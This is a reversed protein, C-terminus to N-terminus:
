RVLPRASELERNLTVAGLVEAMLPLYAEYSYQEVAIKRAAAGMRRREDPDDALQKIAALWEERTRALIGNLGDRVVQDGIGYYSSVVPVGSAMYLMLKGGGRVRTRANEPQYSIAIDFRAVENPETESDWRVFETPIGAISADSPAGILALELRPDRTAAEAVASIIPQILPFTSPSGTWGIRVRNSGNNGSARPVFRSVDVPGRMVKVERTRGRISEGVLENEVIVVDAIDLVHSFRPRRVFRYEISSILGDSTPIHIPDSFDFVVRKVAARIKAILARPPLIEQVFVVDAWSLQAEVARWAKRRADAYIRQRALFPMGSAATPYVDIRRVDIGAASLYPEWAHVRLRSSARLRDGIAIM